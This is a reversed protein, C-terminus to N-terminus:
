ILSAVKSECVFVRLSLQLLHISVGLSSCMLDMIHSFSRWWSIFGSFFVDVEAGECLDLSLQRLQPPFRCAILIHGALFALHEEHVM